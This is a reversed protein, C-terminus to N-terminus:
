KSLAEGFRKTIRSMMKGLDLGTFFDPLGPFDSFRWISKDLDWGHSAAEVRYQDESMLFARGFRGEPGGTMESTVLIYRGSIGQLITGIIKICDTTDEDLEEGFGLKNADGVGIEISGENIIIKINDKITENLFQEFEDRCLSPRAPDEEDELPVIEKDFRDLLGEVLMDIESRVINELLSLTKPNQIKKYLKAM